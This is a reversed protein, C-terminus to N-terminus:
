ITGSCYHYYNEDDLKKISILVTKAKGPIHANRRIQCDKAFRVLDNKNEIELYVVSDDKNIARLYTKGLGNGYLNITSNNPLSKIYELFHKQWAYLEHNM